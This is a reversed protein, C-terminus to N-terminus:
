VDVEGGKAQAANKQPEGVELAGDKEEVLSDTSVTKMAARPRTRTGNFILFQPLVSSAAVPVFQGCVLM